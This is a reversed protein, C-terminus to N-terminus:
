AAAVGAEDFVPARDGFPRGLDFTAPYQAMPFGVEHQEGSTALPQEDELFSFSAEADDLTGDISFSDESSLRDGTLEAFKWFSHSLGDAEVVPVLEGLMMFQVLRDADLGEEAIRM